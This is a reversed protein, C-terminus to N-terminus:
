GITAWKTKPCSTQSLPNMSYNSGLFTRLIQVSGRHSDIHKTLYNVVAWWGRNSNFKYLPTILCLFESLVVWTVISCLMRRKENEIKKKKIQQQQQKKNTKNHILFCYEMFGFWFLRGQAFVQFRPVKLVLQLHLRQQCAHILFFLKLFVSINLAWPGETLSGVTVTPMSRHTVGCSSRCGFEKLQCVASAVKWNWNDQLVCIHNRYPRSSRDGDDHNQHLIFCDPSYKLACYGLMGWNIQFEM